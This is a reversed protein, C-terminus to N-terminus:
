MVSSRLRFPTASAMFAWFHWTHDVVVHFYYHDAGSEIKKAYHMFRETARLMLSEWTLKVVVGDSEVHHCPAFVPDLESDVFEFEIGEPYDKFADEPLSRHFRVHLRSPHLASVKHLTCKLDADDDNRIEGQSWYNLYECAEKLELYAPHFLWGHDIQGLDGLPQFYREHIWIYHQDIFYGHNDDFFEHIRIPFDVSTHTCNVRYSEGGLEVTTIKPQIM